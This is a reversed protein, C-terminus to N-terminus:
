RQMRGVIERAREALSTTANLRNDVALHQCRPRLNLDVHKAYEDWSTMKWTDRAAGRSRLYQQMSDLDCEMWVVAMSASRAACSNRTRALWAEDTVETLFPATVITSVGRDLNDYAVNLLCRYELPRVRTRYLETHRDNPDAGLRLLLDEVLPRTLTDKDLLAWGTLNTLFRAFETKGSGAYGGILTLLPNGLSVPARRSQFTDRVRSELEIEDDTWGVLKANRFAEMVVGVRDIRDDPSEPAAHITSDAGDTVSADSTPTCAVALAADVAAPPPMAKGAEWATVVAATLDPFDLLQALVHSFQESTM